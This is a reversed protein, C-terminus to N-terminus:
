QEASCIFRVWSWIFPFIGNLSASYKTLYANLVVWKTLSVVYKVRLKIWTWMLQYAFSDSAAAVKIFIDPWSVSALYFLCVALLSAAVVGNTWEPRTQLFDRVQECLCAPRINSWATGHQNNRTSVRDKEQREGRKREASMEYTGEVKPAKKEKKKEGQNEGSVFIQISRWSASVPRKFPESPREDTLYTSEKEERREGQSASVASLVRKWRREGLSM